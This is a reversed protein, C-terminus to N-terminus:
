QEEETEILGLEELLKQKIAEETEEDPGPYKSFIEEIKELMYEKKRQELEEESYDHDVIKEEIHERIHVIVDEAWTYIPGALLMALLIIVIIGAFRKIGKLEKLTRYLWTKVTSEKIGYKEAIEKITKNEFFHQYFIEKTLEDKEAVYEMVEDATLKDILSDEWTVNSSTAETTESELLEMNEVYIYAAQQEKESYYRYVKSKALRLAFAEPYRIYETDKQLLTKYLEIYIEQLIDEAETVAGCKRLIYSLVKQYTDNYITDFKERVNEM